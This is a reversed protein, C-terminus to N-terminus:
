KNENENHLIHKVTNGSESYCMKLLIALLICM